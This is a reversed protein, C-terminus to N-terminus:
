RSSGTKTASSARARGASPVERRSTRGIATTAATPGSHSSPTAPAPQSAPVPASSQNGDNVAHNAAPMTSATSRARRAKGTGAGAGPPASGHHRTSAAAGAAHQTPAPANSTTAAVGTAPERTGPGAGSPAAATSM